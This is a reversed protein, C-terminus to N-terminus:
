YGAPDANHMEVTYDFNSGSDDFNIAIRNDDHADIELTVYSFYSQFISKTSKKKCTQRSWPLNNIYFIFKCVNITQTLIM